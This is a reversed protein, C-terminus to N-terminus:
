LQAPAPIPVPAPAPASHTWSGAPDVLHHAPVHDCAGCTLGLCGRQEKGWVGARRADKTEAGCGLEPDNGARGWVRTRSCGRSQEM